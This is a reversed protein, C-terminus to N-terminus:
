HNEIVVTLLIFFKDTVLAWIQVLSLKFYHDDFNTSIANDFVASTPRQRHYDFTTLTPWMIHHDSNLLRPM